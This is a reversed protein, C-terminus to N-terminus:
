YFLKECCRREMKARGSRTIQGKQGCNLWERGKTEPRQVMQLSDLLGQYETKEEEDNSRSCCFSRRMMSKIEIIQLVMRKQKTDTHRIPFVGFLTGEM